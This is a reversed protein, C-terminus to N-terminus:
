LIVQEWNDCIASIVGSEHLQQMIGFKVQKARNILWKQNMGPCNSFVKLASGELGPRDDNVDDVIFYAKIDRGLGNIYVREKWQKASLGAQSCVNLLTEIKKEM